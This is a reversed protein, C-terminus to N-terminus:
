LGPILQVVPLKRHGYQDNQQNIQRKIEQPGHHPRRNPVPEHPHIEDGRLNDHNDSDDSRGALGSIKQVKSDYVGQKAKDAGNEDREKQEVSRLPPASSIVIRLSTIINAPM